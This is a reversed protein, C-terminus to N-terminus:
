PETSISDPVRLGLFPRALPQRSSSSGIVIGMRRSPLGPSVPRNLSIAKGQTGAARKRLPHLRALDGFAAMEVHRRWLRDERVAEAVKM